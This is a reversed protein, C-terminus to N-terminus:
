EALRDGVFRVRDSSGNKRTIVFPGERKDAIWGGEFQTGDQRLEIGQGYRQDAIFTGTFSSGDAFKLKGEGNRMGHAFNGEYVEGFPFTLKGFGHFQDNKWEGAFLDGNKMYQTGFGSRQGDQFNGIYKEGNAFYYTGNSTMQGDRFNGVYRDGRNEKKTKFRYIGFGHFKGNMFEGDYVGDKHRPDSSVVFHGWCARGNTNREEGLRRPYDAKTCLPLKDPNKHQADAQSTCSIFTVALVAPLLLPLRNMWSEPTLQLNIVIWLRRDTSLIRLLFSNATNQQCDKNQRIKQWSIVM